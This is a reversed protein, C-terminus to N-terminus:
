FGFIDSQKPLDLGFAFNGQHKLKISPIIHIKGGLSTWLNCFGYDESEYKKTDPNISCPFFDFYRDSMSMYGDIDNKYELDTREKAIKEFVSKKILMFGTAAYNVEVLKSNQKIKKFHHERLESSPDTVLENWHKTKLKHPKKDAVYNMKNSSFYKKPYVGCAVDVHADILKFVDEPEFIVDADIFLLHTYDNTLVHSGSVNRARGILSEFFIGNHSFSIDPRKLLTHVFLASCAVAFDARCSGGYAIMPFYIRNKPPSQKAM